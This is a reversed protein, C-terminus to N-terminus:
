NAREEFNFNKIKSDVAGMSCKGSGNVRSKSSELLHSTASNSKAISQFMSSKMNQELTDEGIAHLPQNQM